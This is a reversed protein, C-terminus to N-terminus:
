TVAYPFFAVSVSSGLTVSAVRCVTLVEIMRPTLDGEEDCIVGLSVGIVLKSWWTFFFECSFFGGRFFSSYFQKGDKKADYPRPNRAM